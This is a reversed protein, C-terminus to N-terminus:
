MLWVAWRSSMGFYRSAPSVWKIGYAFITLGILVGISGDLFWVSSNHKFVEASLLISFGMIGGVLSNFGLLSFFFHFYSCFRLSNAKLMEGLFLHGAPLCPITIGTDGSLSLGAPADQCRQCWVLSVTRSRWVGNALPRHWTDKWCIVCLVDPTQCYLTLGRDTTM